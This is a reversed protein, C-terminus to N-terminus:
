EWHGERWLWHREKKGWMGGIWIASEHPKAEWHGKVWIWRDEWRWNGKIWIYGPKTAMGADEVLDAPPENEVMVYRPMVVEVGYHEHHGHAQLLAFSFTFFLACANFKKM